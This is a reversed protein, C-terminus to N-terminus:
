SGILARAGGLVIGSRGHPVATSFSMRLDGMPALTVNMHWEVSTDRRLIPVSRQLVAAVVHGLIQRAIRRGLCARAGVGFPLFQYPSPRATRWRAPTFRDPDPFVAPNRHEVFPSIVVETRAPIDLGSLHLDRTSVRVMVANAPVVRLSESVAEDILPSMKDPTGGALAARLETTVDARQTLILLLWALSTAVPESSSAMLINAHAVLEDESPPQRWNRGGSLLRGVVCSSSTSATSAALAGVRERLVGDLATGAAILAARLEPTPAAGHLRRLDFYQRVFGATGAGAEGLVLEESVAGAVRRAWDLVDVEGADVVEAVAAEVVAPPPRELLRRDGGLVSALAQQRERHVEGGM